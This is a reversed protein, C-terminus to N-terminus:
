EPLCCNDQGIEEGERIFDGSKGGSKKVLRVKEIVMNKDVAKCMDYITLCAGCVATLAEMEAGTKSTVTVKAEVEVVSSSHNPTLHVEIGSPSLMHCLPILESTKKAAMIGAIQATTLVNGKPMIGKTLLELTDASMRVEGRAVAERLTTDKSGVNVMHVGGKPDLHTLSKGM